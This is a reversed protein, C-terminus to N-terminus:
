VSGYYDEYSLYNRSTNELYTVNELIRQKETDTPSTLKDDLTEYFESKVNMGELVNYFILLTVISEPSFYRKDYHKWNTYGHKDYLKEPLIDLHNVSDIMDQEFQTKGPLHRYHVAIFKHIDEWVTDVFDNFTDRIGSTLLRNHHLLEENLKIATYLASTLSTSQLPEIFGYANGILVCNGVFAKDHTGSEFQHTTIQDETVDNPCYDLFTQLAHEHDTHKSSFVYGKDRRNSTDIQWVWGHPASNIVTAPQIDKLSIPWNTTVATDLPIGFPQFDNNLNSSIPRAFGGADIYLDAVYTNNNSEISNIWECDTNVNSITDNILTIEREKCLVRLFENFKSLDLHYAVGTHRGIEGNPGEPVFPTRQQRALESSRTHFENHNYRYYWERFQVDTSEHVLVEPMDFPVLFPAHGFWDEFHVAYKWVPKVERIFRNEDIHLVNHLFDIISAYTSKGVQPIGQNFDDVVRVSIDSHYQKVTLATLLGADGGGVILVDEVRDANNM